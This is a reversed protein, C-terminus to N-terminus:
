QWYRGIITSQQRDQDPRQIRQRWQHRRQTVHGRTRRRQVLRQHICKITGSISSISFNGNILAGNGGVGTGAITLAEGGITQGNLDLTGGFDINTGNGNSGLAAANGLVITGSSITTLGSFTNAGNLTLTGTGGMVLGGTGNGLIGGLTVNGGGAIGM